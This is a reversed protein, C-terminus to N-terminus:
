PQSGGHHDNCTVVAILVDLSPAAIHPIAITLQVIAHVTMAFIETMDSPM